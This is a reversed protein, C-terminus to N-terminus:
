TQGASMVSSQVFYTLVVRVTLHWEAIVVSVVRSM